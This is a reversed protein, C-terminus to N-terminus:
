EIDQQYKAMVDCSLWGLTAPEKCSWIHMRGTYYSLFCLQVITFM